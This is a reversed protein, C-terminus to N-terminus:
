LQEIDSVTYKSKFMYGHNTADQINLRSGILDECVTFCITNNIYINAVAPSCTTSVNIIRGTEADFDLYTLDQGEDEFFIRMKDM